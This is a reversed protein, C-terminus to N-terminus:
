ICLQKTKDAHQEWVMTKRIQVLACLRTLGDGHMAEGKMDWEIGKVRHSMGKNHSM